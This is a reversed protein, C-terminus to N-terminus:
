GLQNLSSSPSTITSQNLSPPPNPETTPPDTPQEHIARKRIVHKQRTCEYPFRPFTIQSAATYEVADIGRLLFMAFLVTSDRVRM